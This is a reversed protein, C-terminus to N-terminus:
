RPDVLKSRGLPRPLLWLLLARLGYVDATVAAEPCPAWCSAYAHLEWVGHKRSDGTKRTTSAFHLIRISVWVHSPISSLLGGAQGTTLQRQPFLRECFTYRAPFFWEVGHSNQCRSVVNLAHCGIFRGCQSIDKCVRDLSTRSRERPCEQQAANLRLEAILTGVRQQLAHLLSTIRM